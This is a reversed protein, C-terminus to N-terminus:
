GKSQPSSSQYDKRGTKIVDFLEYKKTLPKLLKNRWRSCGVTFNQVSRLADERFWLPNLIALITLPFIVLALPATILWFCVSVKIAVARPLNKRHM